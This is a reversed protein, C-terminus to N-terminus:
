KTASAASGAGAVRAPKPTAPPTGAGDTPKADAAAVKKKAAAKKAPTPKPAAARAAAAAADEEKLTELGVEDLKLQASAMLTRAGLDREQAAQMLLTSCLGAVVAIDSKPATGADTGKMTLRAMLELCEDRLYTANVDSVIQRVSQSLSETSAANARIAAQLEGSSSASASSKSKAQALDQQLQSLTDQEQTLQVKSNKVDTLDSQLQTQLTKGTAKLSDITATDSAASIQDANDSISKNDADVKAQKTNLDQLATTVKQRQADVAQQASTVAADGASAGAHAQASSLVLAQSAMVPGTLQEIALLGMVTSQFRRQMAKFEASDMAGGAYGECLRYMQDRLIQISQTRLGIFAASESAASSLDIAKSAPGAGLNLSLGNSVGIATLADPSPEACTAIFSQEPHDRTPAPVNHSFIVRQKADISVGVNPGVALAATYPGPQACGTLLAAATTAVAILARFRTSAPGGPRASSALLSTEYAALSAVGSNSSHPAGMSEEGADEAGTAFNLCTVLRM